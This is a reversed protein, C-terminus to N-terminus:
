NNRLYLFTYLIELVTFSANINVFFFGWFVKSIVGNIRVRHRQLVFQPYNICINCISSGKCGDPIEDVRFILINDKRHNLLYILLYSAHIHQIIMCFPPLILWNFDDKIRVFISSQPIGIYM